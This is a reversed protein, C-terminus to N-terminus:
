LEIVFAIIMAKSEHNKVIMYFSIKPAYNAREEKKYNQINKAMEKKQKFTV